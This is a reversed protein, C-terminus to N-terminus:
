SPLAAVFREKNPVDAEILWLDPDRARRRELMAAFEGQNDANQSRTPVFTRNGAADPMREFLVPPEGRGIIVIGVTGADNDGRALITAFGGLSEAIRRIAAVELHAPLRRDM